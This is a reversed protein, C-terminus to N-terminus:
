ENVTKVIENIMDEFTDAKYIYDHSLQLNKEFSFLKVNCSNNEAIQYLQRGLEYPIINDDKAHMIFLPKKIQQIFDASNFTLNSNEIIKDVNLLLKFGKAVLFTGVEDKM